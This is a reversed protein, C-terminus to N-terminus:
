LIAHSCHHNDLIEYLYILATEYLVPVKRRKGIIHRLAGQRIRIHGRSYGFYMRKEVAKSEPGTDLNGKAALIGDVPHKYIHGGDSIAADDHRNKGVEIRDVDGMDDIMRFRLQKQDTGMYPLLYFRISEQIDFPDYSDIVHLHQM